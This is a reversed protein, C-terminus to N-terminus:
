SLLTCVNDFWGATHLSSLLQPNSHRPTSCTAKVVTMKDEATVEIELKGQNASPSTDVNDIKRKPPASCSTQTLVVHEIADHAYKERSIKTQIGM